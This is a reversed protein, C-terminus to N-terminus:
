IGFELSERHWQLTEAIAQQMSTRQLGPLVQHLKEDNLLITHQWLYGMESIERMGASFLGMLKFLWGPYLKHQPKTGAIEAIQAQWKKISPVVEGAYNYEVYAPLQPQKALKYFVKAADPTYVLQHPIDNRYLWPMPKGALAGRFVPAIGENMVNPGWFDPMRLNIIRCEGRDTAQRLMQELKVRIAGKKTTPAQPTTETIVPILGFNYINGPFFITAKNIAAAELVNQTVREMNGQWKEYPYNIGHFIHTADAGLKKLLDRNQADGEVLQLTPCPGFLKQAKQRNRVLLTVREQHRLLEQAFAYGISGTGGLVLFRMNGTAM